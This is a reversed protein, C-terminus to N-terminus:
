SAKNLEKLKNEVPMFKYGKYPKNLKISRSIADDGTRINKIIGNELLWEACSRYSDFECVFEEKYYVKIKKSNPHNGRNKYREKAKESIKEKSYDSHIRNYFPNLEGYRGYMPNKDGKMNESKLKLVNDYEDKTLNGYPNKGYMPNDKGVRKGKRSISMKKKTEKSAHRGINSFRLKEITEKSPKGNAGGTKNNYGYFRNNSKYLDIYISEKIDIEDKSFSYDIISVEFKKYGYKEASSKLHKNHSQLWWKGGRYREKFTLTTQGIYVKNNIKNEIKYIIGYVELNGIKM